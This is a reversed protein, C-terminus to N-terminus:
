RQLRIRCDSQEAECQAAYAAVVARPVRSQFAGPSLDYIGQLYARDFDTLGAPALEPGQAFLSLMSPLAVGGFDIQRRPMGLIYLAANDAIQGLTTGGLQDADYMVVSLTKPRFTASNIRSPADNQSIALGLDSFTAGDANATGLVSWWVVPRKDRLENEIRRTHVDRFPLVGVLDLRKSVLTKYMREPDRVVIVVANTRCGPRPEGLGLERSTALIRDAVFSAQEPDLGAVEICLPQFFRPMTEFVSLRETMRRLNDKFVQRAMERQSLVEIETPDVDPQDTQDQASLALPHALAASVFALIGLTTGRM